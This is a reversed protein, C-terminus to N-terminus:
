LSDLKSRFKWTKNQDLGRAKSTRLTESDIKWLNGFFKWKSHIELKEVIYEVL